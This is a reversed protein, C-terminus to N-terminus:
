ALGHRDHPADFDIEPGQPIIGHPNIRRGAEFYYGRKILAFDVTDGFGPTQHLDLLYGHLNRYDRIRRLNCKFLTHYAIDFRVLTTYLRIDAETINGGALYRSAGLRSDIRDLAAFLTAFAEDYASQSTAFGCRYVGNNINEYVFANIEDIRERQEAPYLDVSREAIGAFADNFMRLIEASENNVITKKERDWLAPVTVRGSYKPEAAAYLRHLDFRGEVPRLDDVGRSFSWGQIRPLDAQSWTVLGTLKKVERGIVTRHAWPCSAGTFLHYRGPEAPFEPEGIRNRFSSRARVFAGTDSTLGRDDDVWEGDILMGM